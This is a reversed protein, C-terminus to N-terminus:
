KDDELWNYDFLEQNDEKSNRKLNNEVDNMNKFGKKGWEYIIKDIYRFNRVGNFTAEKLAGILVDESTGSKLWGNILEYEMPSLPRGFESEFITFIKTTQEETKKDVYNTEIRQYFPDLSITEEIKKDSNQNTKIEVLNNTILCNFALMVEEESFNLIKKLEDLNIIPKQQNLFYILLFISNIDLNLSKIERLECETLVFKSQNLLGKPM